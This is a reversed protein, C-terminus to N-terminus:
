LSAVRDPQDNASGRLALVPELLVRLVGVFDLRTNHFVQNDLPREVSSDLSDVVDNVSSRGDNELRLHTASSPRARADDICSLRACWCLALSSTISGAM